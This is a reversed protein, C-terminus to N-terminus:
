QLGLITNCVNLRRIATLNDPLEHEGWTVSKKFPSLFTLNTMNCIKLTSEYLNLEHTLGLDLMGLCNYSGM